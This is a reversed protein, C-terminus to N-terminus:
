KKVPVTLVPCHAERVVREAVSGIVLRSLGTRGHTALMILDIKNASAFNLIETHVPACAEVVSVLYDLGALNQEAIKQIELRIKAIVQQHIGPDPLVPFDMAYILAAQSPDEVVAILHVKSKFASAVARVLGFVGKSPESLDTTVLINKM